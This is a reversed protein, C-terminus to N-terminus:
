FQFYVFPVQATPTLLLLVLLAVAYGVSRLPWPVRPYRSVLDFRADLASIVAFALMVATAAPDILSRADARSRFLGVMFDAALDFSTARFLILSFCVFGFTAAWGLAPYVVGARVRVLWAVHATRETLIRHLALAAGHMTGWLVFTWAAGHWLGSLTFVLVINFVGAGMSPSAPAERGAARLAKRRAIFRRRSRTELPLYLYDRMWSNFSIHWRRWFDTITRARFPAVFNVPLEFGLMRASGRAMDTYGSFDGYIQLTYGLAALWLTPRDFGAPDTFVLDVCRVAILDALLNKKGLGWLFLRAGSKFRDLRFMPLAELQPVLQATRVIPGAVLQPFFSVFALYRLPDRVPKEVGRYVDLTYSMSQFTYFSM